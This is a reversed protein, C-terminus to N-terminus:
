SEQTNNTPTSTHVHTHTHTSTHLLHTSEGLPAKKADYKMEVVMDEMAKVNCILEILSQTHTHTHTHTLVYAHAHM